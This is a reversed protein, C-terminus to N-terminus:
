RQKNGVEVTGGKLTGDRKEKLFLHSELITNRQEKTLYKRHLPVFTDRM